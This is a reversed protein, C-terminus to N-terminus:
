QRSLYGLHIDQMNDQQHSLASSIPEYRIHKAKELWLLVGQSGLEVFM